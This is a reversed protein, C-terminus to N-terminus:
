TASLEGTYKKGDITVVCQNKGAPVSPGEVPPGYRFQAEAIDWKQPKRITRDYYPALLAGEPGHDLGLGHGTEHCIVRVADIKSPAPTESIVWPEASDYLGQFTSNPSDNGCPLEQWALTGSARDIKGINFLLNPANANREFKVACVEAWYSLALAFAADTQEQSFGPLPSSVHYRLILTAPKNEKWGSGNWQTHDWRCRSAADLAIRDPVACFRQRGMERQTIPGANRDIKLGHIAQFKAIAENYEFGTPTETGLLGVEMLFDVVEPKTYPPTEM